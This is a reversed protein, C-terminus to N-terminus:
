RHRARVGTDYKSIGEPRCHAKRKDDSVFPKSVSRHFNSLSSLHRKASQKFQPSFMHGYRPVTM